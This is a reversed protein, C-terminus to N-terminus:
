NRMLTRSRGVSQSSPARFLELSKVGVEIQPLFHPPCVFALHRRPRLLRVQALHSQTGGEVTDNM